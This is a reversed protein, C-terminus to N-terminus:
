DVLLIVERQRLAEEKRSIKLFQFIDVPYCFFIVFKNQVTDIILCELQRLLCFLLFFYKNIMRAELSVGEGLSAVQLLLASTTLLFTLATARIRPSINQVTNLKLTHYFSKHYIIYDKACKCKTYNLIQYVTLIKM